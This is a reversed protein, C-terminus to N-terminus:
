DDAEQGGTAGAPKTTSTSRTAAARKTAADPRTIEKLTLPVAPSSATTELVNVKGDRTREFSHLVSGDTGVFRVVVREPSFNLDAFGQISRSFPGRSDNQMPRTSAGGGGVLMLSTRVGPIELHQLDHDHGCIYLDVGHKEFLPGFERQLVGIDGHRGNSYLPHHAIAVIWTAKRPQELEKKLWELQMKWAVEGVGDKYSDLVLVSVLPKEARNPFDVRYWHAPLKWRGRPHAKAYAMEIQWKRMGGPALEEYDHNGLAAYFPFDLINRDYMAEFMTKWKPDDVGSFKVYFNDGATFLADFQRGSATVHKALADAVRKQGPGVQGIDGMSLLNVERLQRAPGSAPTRAAWAASSLATLMLIVFVLGGSRKM